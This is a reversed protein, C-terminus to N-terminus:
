RDLSCCSVYTRLASINRLVGSIADDGSVDYQKEGSASIPLGCSLLQHNSGIFVLVILISRLIPLSMALLPLSFAADSIIWENFVTQQFGNPPSHDGMIISILM